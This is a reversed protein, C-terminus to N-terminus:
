QVLVYGQKAPDAITSPDVQYLAYGADAERSGEPTFKYFRNPGVLKAAPISAGKKADFFAGDFERSFVSAASWTRVGSRLTQAAVGYAVFVADALYASHSLGRVAKETGKSFVADYGTPTVENEPFAIVVPPFEASNARVMAASTLPFPKQKVTPISSQLRQILNDDIAGDTLVILKPKLAARATQRIIELSPKTMAIVVYADANAAAVDATVYWRSAGGSVPIESVVEIRSVPATPPTSPPPQEPNELLAVLADACDSSYADNAADRFLVVSRVNNSRLFKAISIAQAKNSPPFQLARPVKCGGADVSAVNKAIGTRTAYPMLVTLEHKAYVAATDLTAQSTTHGIVAVAPRREEAARRIEDEAIRRRDVANGGEPYHRFVFSDRKLDPYRTAYAIEANDVTRAIDNSIKDDYPEEGPMEPARENGQVPILITVRQVALLSPIGILWNTLITLVATSVLAVMGRWLWRRVRGLRVHKTSSTATEM